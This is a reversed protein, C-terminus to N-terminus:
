TSVPCPTETVPTWGLEEEATKITTSKEMAIRLADDRTYAQGAWTPLALLSLAFAVSPLIAFQRSM